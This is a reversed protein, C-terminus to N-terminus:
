AAPTPTLHGYLLQGVGELVGKVNCPKDLFAEDEGLVMREKFLLSSFGTFYLVKLLPYRERLRRALEDGNMEPMRLDTLLLDPAEDAAVDLAEPGSSAVVTIYGADRLVRDILQVIAREDDVVLVRPQAGSRRLAVAHTRVASFTDTATM